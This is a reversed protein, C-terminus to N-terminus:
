FNWRFSIGLVRDSGDLYISVSRDARDDTVTTFYRHADVTENWLDSWVSISDDPAGLKTRVDNRTFAGDIADYHFRASGAQRFDLSIFVITEGEDDTGVMIGSDFQLGQEGTGVLNGFLYRVENLNAGLLDAINIVEESEGVPESEPDTHVDPEELRQFLRLITVISQERTYQGRPSFRNEGVGHMIDASQVRGVATEAWYSVDNMDSFTGAHDPLPRDLVDALRDLMVAAQERTLRNSPAFRGGGVGQVVDIYAAKRVAEDNTDIFEVRGTIEGRQNEYLAVVMAAFEARTAASTFGSQLHAPVLGLDIATQVQEAAWNSPGSFWAARHEIYREFVAFGNERMYTASAVGIYRWHWPEFAIGTIHEYAQPYRLIFGYHHAHQQLWAFQQTNQFQASRLSSGTFGRQVIDLALGTQHESHGPRAVWREAEAQGMNRVANNWLTRQSEYSRFGSIPALFLNAANMSRQMDLFANAARARMLQGGGVPILDPPHHTSSLGHHRNVLILYEEPTGITVAQAFV